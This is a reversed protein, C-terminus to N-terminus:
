PQEVENIDYGLPPEDPVQPGQGWIPLEGPVKVIPTSGNIIPQSQSAWRGKAALALDSQAQAILTQPKPQNDDNM